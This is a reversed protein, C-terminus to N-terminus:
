LNRANGGRVLPLGRRGCVPRARRLASAPDVGAPTDASRRVGVGGCCQRPLGGRRGAGPDDAVEIWAGLPKLADDIASAVATPAILRGGEGAGKVGYETVPSPTEQHEVVITPVDHVSPLLYEHFTGTLLTDDEAYHYEEMLAAGIGQAIGGVVQGEVLKPNMVTGCDNVAYYKLLTM